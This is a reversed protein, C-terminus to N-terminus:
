CGWDELLLSNDSLDCEEADLAQGLAIRLGQPGIEAADVLLEMGAASEGAAMAPLTGSQILTDGEESRAYITYASGSAIAVAGANWVQLNLHLTGSQCDSMCQEVLAGALQPRDMRLPYPHARFLPDNASENPPESGDARSAGFDHTPWTSIGPAWGDGDHGFCNVGQYSGAREESYINSSLCIEASNDRDIDAVVPYEWMTMSAHEEDEHLVAGTAGDFIRFADQDAYLVEYAGDDDVDFASCGALGSADNTPGSWLAVGNTEFVSIRIDTPVAIEPTGDGDFDAICPPGPNKGTLDTISRVRGDHEHVVMRDGSVVFVELEPDEDINAVATFSGQGTARLTWATGGDAGYVRDGLLIEKNGDGDLDAVVPTHYTTGHASLSAMTSGDYGRLVAVDGIVELLGDGDLDAVTPQPFISLPFSRSRWAIQGDAKVAVVEDETSFAIVEPQGDNDVDAISVGGTGQFGELQWLVEGTAGSLVILQDAGMTTFAIEPLDADDVRGDGNDDNLNGIAPMVGVGSGQSTFSRELQISFPQDIGGQPGSGAQCSMDVPVASVTALSLTCTETGVSDANASDKICALSLLSLLM